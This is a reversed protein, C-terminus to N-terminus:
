EKWREMINETTDATWIKGVYEVKEGFEDLTITDATLCTGPRIPTKATTLCGEQCTIEYVSETTVIRPLGDLCYWNGEARVAEIRGFCLFGDVHKSKTYRVIDGVKFKHDPITIIIDM